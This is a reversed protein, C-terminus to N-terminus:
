SRNAEGCMKLEKGKEQSPQHKEELVIREACIAAHTLLESPSTLNEPEAKFDQYRGDQGQFVVRIMGSRTVAVLAAKGQYPNRAGLYRHRYCSVKWHNDTKRM